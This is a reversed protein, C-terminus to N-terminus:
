LVAANVISLMPGLQEQGSTALDSHCLIVRDGSREMLDRVIRELRQEHMLLTDQAEWRRGSWGRLFLPSGFLADVGTLWRDGGADFWFQWRHSERNLRYQFVTAITVADQAQGVAQVPYPNANVAGSRLLQIFSRVAFSQSKVEPDSQNLRQEVEWYHQATDLLERLSSIQEFPLHTGGSFFKQIARDLLVIPNAILRAALQEQQIGIWAILDEYANMGDYGLRDWRPFVQSSLLEPLDPHPKFCHDVLLGSRVPDIEPSLIVLMEAVADPKVLRGLHPYILTLLTLLSRVLPVSTLPRQENLNKVRIGQGTLMQTLAYRSIPDFGPAVIAIDRAKVDGSQISEIIKTATQRLLQARTNTQLGQICDPIPPPLFLPTAILNLMELGAEAFCCDSRPSLELTEWDAAMEEMVKPDAGLGLRIGGNPNFTCVVARSYTLVQQFVSRMVPPYEDVDDAFISQIRYPLQLQYLPDRLLHQGYLETIMGYNLFGRDLCWSRWGMLMQALVEPELVLDVSDSGFGQDLIMSIEELPTESFAALQYIDLLRRVLKQTQIGTKGLAIDLQPQWLRAALEQENEPRLRVPFQAARELKKILLPWFLLVEEEFFGLPTTARFPIKSQAMLRDSLALRNDGIASLVLARPYIAAKELVPQRVGPPQTSTQSWAQFADLLHHTKGSLSPGVIWRPQRQSQPQRQPHPQSQVKNPM